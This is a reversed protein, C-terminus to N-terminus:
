VPLPFDLIAAELVPYVQIEAQLYSLFLYSLFSIGVAIAINELDLLRIPCTTHNYSRVPLIFHLIADKWGSNGKDSSTSLLPVFNWRSFGNKRPGAVRFSM